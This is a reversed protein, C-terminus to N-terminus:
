KFDNGLKYLDEKNAIFQDGTIITGKFFTIDQDELIQSVKEIEALAVDGVHLSNLIAGAVGINIIYDPSFKLIMTQTCIAANVKGPSSKAIVCERGSLIGKTYKIGSIVFEQEDKLSKVLTDIEVDMAGIIGIM